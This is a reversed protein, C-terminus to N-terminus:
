LKYLMRGGLKQINTAPCENFFILDKIPCTFMADHYHVKLFLPTAM